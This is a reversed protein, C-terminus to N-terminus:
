PAELATRLGFAILVAGTIGDIGRVVAPHRLWRAGAGAALILAGFWLLGLAVHVAALLAGMALPPVGEALFQPLTALYFVGVKPNLLNTLLGRRLCRYAGRELAPHAHVRPAGRLAALLMRAGLAVLYAAGAYRVVDYGTRSATLLAAVGAAATVGWILVGASIGLATWGANRRSGTLAARLVLATDLGPLITILGAVVAFSILAQELSM